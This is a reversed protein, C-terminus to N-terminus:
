SMRSVSGSPYRLVAVFNAIAPIACNQFITPTASCAGSAADPIRDVGTVLHNRIKLYFLLHSLFPPNPRYVACSHRRDHM